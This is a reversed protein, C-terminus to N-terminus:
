QSASWEMRMIAGLSRGWMWGIAYCGFVRVDPAFCRSRYKWRLSHEETAVEATYRRVDMSDLLLLSHTLSTASTVSVNQRSSRTWANWSRRSSKWSGLYKVSPKLLQPQTLEM